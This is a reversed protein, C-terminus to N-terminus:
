FNPGLLAGGQGWATGGFGTASCVADLNTVNVAIAQTWVAPTGACFSAATTAANLTFSGTQLFRATATATYTIRGSGRLVISGPGWMTAAAVRFVGDVVLNNSGAGLYVFNAPSSAVAIEGGAPVISITNLIVDDGLFGTQLDSLGNSSTLIGGLTYGTAGYTGQGNLSQQADVNVLNLLIRGNNSWKDLVLQRTVLSEFLYAGEGVLVSAGHFTDPDFITCNQIILAQQLGAGGDPYNNEDSFVPKVQVLNIKVPNYVNVTDGNAWTDVESPFSIGFPDVPLLLPQSLSFITGSVVKYTWASSPHTANVLLLNTTLSAGADASGLDAQLLQPTARVKATVSALTVASGVQTTGDLPCVVKVQAHNEVYPNFYVPDTGDTEGPALFTITTNQRLRPSYTGWRAAIEAYTKCPSGSTTCTNGDSGTSRNVFWAPVTWSAAIGTGADSSPMRTAALRRGGEVEVVLGTPEVNEHCAVWVWGVCWAFALAIAWAAVRHRHDGM